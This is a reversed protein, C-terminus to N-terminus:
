RACQISDRIERWKRIAQRAEKELGKAKMRQVFRNFFDPSKAKWKALESAPFTHFTVGKTLLFAEARKEAALTVPIEKKRSREAVSLLVNQHSVSLRKWISESIWIGWSPGEWITVRSVHKATDYIKYSVVLDVSFPCGDIVGQKLAEPIDPLFLKVPQAGAAKMLLPLDNGWTRIRLGNLDKLRKVPKRTVLLYPNLLHFFLPRIGNEAAEQKFVPLESVLAKMIASSQCIDDMAMPISNPASFFPLQEPFYGASMAAMDIHGAKLLALNETPQGLGNSWFIRIEVEGNTEKKVQEAFWHDIRSGAAEAPFQHNMHLIVRGAVAMPWSLFVILLAYTMVFTHRSYRKMEKEGASQGGRKIEGRTLLGSKHYM